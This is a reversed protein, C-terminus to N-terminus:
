RPPADEPPHQADTKPEETISTELVEVADMLEFDDPETVDEANTPPSSKKESRSQAASTSTSPQLFADLKQAKSDTRVM